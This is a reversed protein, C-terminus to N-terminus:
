VFLDTQNFVSLKSPLESNVHHERTFPKPNTIYVNDGVITLRTYLVKELVDMFGAASGLTNIFASEYQTFARFTYEYHAPDEFDYRAMLSESPFASQARKGALMLTHNSLVDMSVGELLAHINEEKSSLQTLKHKLRSLPETLSFVLLQPAPM